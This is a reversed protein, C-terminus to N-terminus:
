IYIYIYISGDKESNRCTPNRPNKGAPETRIERRVGRRTHQFIRFEFLPLEEVIQTGKGLRPIGHDSNPTNSTFGLFTHTHKYNIIKYVTLCKSIYIYIYIYTRKYTYIDINICVCM